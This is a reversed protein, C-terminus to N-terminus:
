PNLVGQQLTMMTARLRRRAYLLAFGLPLLVMPLFFALWALWLEPALVTVYAFTAVLALILFGFALYFMDTM